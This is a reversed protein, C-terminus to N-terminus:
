FIYMLLNLEPSQADDGTTAYIFWVNANLTGSNIEKSRPTDSLLGREQTLQPEARLAQETTRRRKRWREGKLSSM